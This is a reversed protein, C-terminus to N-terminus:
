KNFDVAIGLRFNMPDIPYHLATFRDPKFFLEGINYMKLFAHIQKLHINLYANLLPAKGGISKEEQNIFQMVAPEYYPAKFQSFYHGEMGIQTRLVGAIYFDGFINAYATIKPLPLVEENSSIQYAGQLEWNLNKWHFRHGIRGEAVEIVRSHQKPYGKNNYYIFNQLTGSKLQFFTGWSDLSATASLMLKREFTFDEDWWHFTGHHHKVFYGPKVNHLKADAMLSFQKKFLSFHTNIEGNVRFNGINEGLVSIEGNAFFNFGKGQTREISGGLYTDFEKVSNYFLSAPEKSILSISRNELRVYASLGFKVWKKFGERVSIALTNTIENLAATDNPLISINGNEDKTDIFHEPYLEQWNAKTKSIFRRFNRNYTFTHAISAVPVFEISDPKIEPDEPYLGRLRKTRPNLLTSDIVTEKYYGLNYRHAFYAYGSRVSNWLMKSPFRVPIESPKIDKKGKSFKEPETIYEDNSIGGNETIRFNENGFHGFAEYKDSRYNSFFRYNVNETAQSNYFGHAMTYNFDAGINFKKGFNIGFIGKFVEEREEVSWNRHYTLLTFPTKTNYFRATEPTTLFGWLVQKYAFHERKMPRDFYLMSQWPSNLSGLYSIGLSRGEASQRRYFYTTVTDAMQTRIPMALNPLIRYSKLKDGRVLLLEEPTDSIESGSYVNHNRGKEQQAWTHISSSMFLLLAAIISYKSKKMFRM